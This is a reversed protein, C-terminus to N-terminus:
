GTVHRVKKWTLCLGVSHHIEFALPRLLDCMWARSMDVGLYDGM